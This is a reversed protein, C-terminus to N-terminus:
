PDRLPEGSAGRVLWLKARSNWARTWRPDLQRVAPEITIKEVGNSAPDHALYAGPLAQRRSGPRGIPVLRRTLGHFWALIMVSGELRVAGHMLNVMIRDMARPSTLDRLAQGSSTFRLALDPAEARGATVSVLRRRSDFVWHRAVGDDTSIEVTLSRTIQSRVPTSFRSALALGHGIWWLLM